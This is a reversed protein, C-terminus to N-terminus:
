NLKETGTSREPRDVLSKVGKKNKNECDIGVSPNREESCDQMQKKKKKIYTEQQFMGPSILM